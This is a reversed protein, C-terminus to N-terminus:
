TLENGEKIKKNLENREKTLESISKRVAALEKAASTQDVEIRIINVEQAM